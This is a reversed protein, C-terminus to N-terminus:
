PVSVVNDSSPTQLCFYEIWLKTDFYVCIFNTKMRLFLFIIYLYNMLIKCILSSGFLQTTAYTLDRGELPAQSLPEAHLTRILFTM